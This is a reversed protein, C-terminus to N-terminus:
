EVHHGLGELADAAAQVVSRPEPGTEVGFFSRTHVAVRVRGPEQQLAATFSTPPPAVYYRDGPAPGNVADLLLTADRVSRTLAFEHAFGGVAEGVAPGLPVRGRSPKLGVLGCWAAPIRISGGGDNAHAMPVACSAVLAASGGSSGGPSRQRNWPNRTPGHAVPATDINFAFEPTASRVLSILGAARFREALTADRSPVFGELMRTGFGLERGAEPLTDKVAFPVGALPGDEVAAASEYPGGVVANLRPEVAEIARLAAVRADRADVERAEMLRRLETADCAAYHHLDM